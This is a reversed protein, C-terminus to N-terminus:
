SFTFDSVHKSSTKSRYLSSLVRDPVYKYATCGYMPDLPKGFPKDNSHLDM